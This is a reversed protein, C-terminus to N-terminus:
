VAPLQLGEDGRSVTIAFNLHMPMILPEKIEPVFSATPICTPIWFPLARHQKVGQHGLPQVAALAENTDPLDTLYFLKVSHWM